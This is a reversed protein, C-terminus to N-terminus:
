VQQVFAPLPVYRTKVSVEDPSFHLITALPTVMQERGTSDACMYHIVVNKLYELNETERSRFYHHHTHAHTNPPPMLIFKDMLECQM